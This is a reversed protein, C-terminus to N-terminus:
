SGAKQVDSCVGEWAGHISPSGPFVSPAVKVFSSPLLIAALTKPPGETRLRSRLLQM